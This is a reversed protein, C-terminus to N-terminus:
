GLWTSPPACQSGMTKGNKPEQEAAGSEATLTTPHTAGDTATTQSPVSDTQEQPEPTPAETRPTDLMLNRDTVWGEAGSNPFRVQVWTACDVWTAGDLEISKLTVIPDGSFGVHRPTLRENLIPIEYDPDPGVLMGTHEHPTAQDIKIKNAAEVEAPSADRALEKL